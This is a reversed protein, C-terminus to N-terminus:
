TMIVSQIEGESVTYTAPISTIVNTSGDKFTETIETTGAPPSVTAVDQIRTMTTGSTPIYSTAYSGAEIQAGWWHMGSGIAIASQRDTNSSTIGFDILNNGISSPTTFTIIVRKIGSGFDVISITSGSGTVLATSTAVNIISLGGGGTLDRIYFNNIDKAKCFLSITYTTSVALSTAYRFRNEQVGSNNSSVDNLTNTGDPATGSSLTAVVGNPTWPGNTFDQSETILNTRQPELLLSGCGNSYDIRPVNSTAYLKVSINDISGVGSVGSNNVYLNTADVTTAIFSYTGVSTATPSTVGYCNLVFSGSTYDVVDFTVIVTAGVNAELYPIAQIMRGSSSCTAKGNAITWGGGKFWGTDSAFDGNTVMEDGIIAATEILGQENVRTASSARAFTLDGTGNVPKQAYIKSEKYGSPYVILSADDYLSM